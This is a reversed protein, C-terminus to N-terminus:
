WAKRAAKGAFPKPSTEVIYEFALESVRGQYAQFFGRLGLQNCSEGEVIDLHRMPWHLAGSEPELRVALGENICGVEAIYGRSHDSAKFITINQDYVTQPLSRMWRMCMQFHRKFQGPFAFGLGYDQSM